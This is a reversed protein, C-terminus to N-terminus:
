TLIINNIYNNVSNVRMLEIEYIGPITPDYEVINSIIYDSNDINYIKYIDIVGTLYVKCNLIHTDSSYKDILMNRHFRYYLTSTDPYNADTIKAYNIKPKNLELSKSISSGTFKYPSFTFYSTLKNGGYIPYSAPNYFTFRNADSENVTSDSLMYLNTHCFKIETSTSLAGAEALTDDMLYMFDNVQSLYGFVINDGYGNIAGNNYRSYGGNYYRTFKDYAYSNYDKLLLPIGADLKIEKTNKRISYATNIIQCAYDQKYKNKYETLFQNTPLTNTLQLKDFDLNSVNMSTIESIALQENTRYYTKPQLHLKSDKIILDLNFFKALQIIFDKIGVKPFVKEGTIMEGSRLQISSYDLTSTDSLYKANLKGDYLLFYDEKDDLPNTLYLTFEVISTNGPQLEYDRLNPYFDTDFIIPEVIDLYEANGSVDFTVFTNVNYLLAIEKWNPLSYINTGNKLRTKVWIKGIQTGDTTGTTYFRDQVVGNYTYTSILKTPSASKYDFTMNFTCYYHGNKEALNAYPSVNNLLQLGGSATGAYYKINYSESLSQNSPSKLLMNVDSFLDVLSSDYGLSNPYQYNISSIVSAIDIAYNIEYNKYTKLQLSTCDEPLKVLETTSGTTAGTTSYCRVENDDFLSDKICFIPVVPSSTNFSKIVDAQSVWTYPEAFSDLIPCNSLLYTNNDINGTLDEIKQILEDFLTVEYDTDTISDVVLLGKSIMVCDDFLTYECKTIQNFLVGTGGTVSINMRTLSGIEGFIDDNNKCRQISISKSSPMNIATVNELDNINHTFPFYTEQDILVRKSNIYLEKM